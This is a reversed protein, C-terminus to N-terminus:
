EGVAKSASEERKTWRILVVWLTCWTILIAPNYFNFDVWSHLLTQLLGAFILVSLPKTWFRARVLTIVALLFGIVLVSGGILGIEALLEL